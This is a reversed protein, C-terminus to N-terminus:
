LYRLILWEGRQTFELQKLASMGLLIEDDRMGPNLSARVDRLSIDGINLEYITTAAVQVNGNATSATYRAGATLGLENALHAPVSVNTAGTDLLFVVPRGNVFGNTVYHGMKNRKLKVEIGNINNVSNPAQNPNYQKDLMNNFFLTLLALGIIWTAFTMGKGLKKTHDVEQDNQEM